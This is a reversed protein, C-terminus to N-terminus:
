VRQTQVSGRVGGYAQEQPPLLAGVAATRPAEVSVAVAKTNDNRKRYCCGDCCSLWRVCAMDTMSCGVICASIGFIIGLFLFALMFALAIVAFVACVSGGITVALFGGVIKAGTGSADTVMGDWIPDFCGSFMRQAALMIAECLLCDSNDEGTGSSAELTVLIEITQVILVGWLVAGALVLVWGVGSCCQRCRSPSVCRPRCCETCCGLPKEPWDLMVTSGPVVDATVPVRFYQSDPTKFVVSGGSVANEPVVAELQRHDDSAPGVRQVVLPDEM